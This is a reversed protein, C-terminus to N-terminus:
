ATGSPGIRELVQLSGALLGLRLGPHRHRHAPEAPRRLEGGASQGQESCAAKTVPMVRVTSPAMVVPIGDGPGTVELSDAFCAM